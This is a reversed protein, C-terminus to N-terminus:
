RSQSLFVDAHASVLVLTRSTEEVNGVYDLKDIHTQKLPNQLGHASFYPHVGCVPARPQTYVGVSLITPPGLWSNELKLGDPATSWYHRSTWFTSPLVVPPPAVTNCCWEARSCARILPHAVDIYSKRGFWYRARARTYPLMFNPLPLEPSM